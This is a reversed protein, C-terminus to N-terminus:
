RNGRRRTLPPDGACRGCLGGSLADLRECVKCLEDVRDAIAAADTALQELQELIERAEASDEGVLDIALLIAGFYNNAKSKTTDQM